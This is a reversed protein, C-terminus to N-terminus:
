GLLLDKAAMCYGKKLVLFDVICRYDQYYGKEKAFRKISRISELRAFARGRKKRKSVSGSHQVYHYLADHVQAMRGAALVCCSLFCTDEASSGAPFAIGNEALMSKRYLFTTFFSVFHRLFYRKDSVDANRRVDDGIAIDCCVLDADKEKALNYLTECFTADIFDDSDVFALYEGKAMGIGINRAAGPGSNCPTEGMIFSKGGSYSSIFGGVKGMSDDTGHDDVLIIEIDDLTQASLSLLCSLIYKGANYVPVIVSVKPM